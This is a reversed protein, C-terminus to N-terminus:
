RDIIDDTMPAAVHYNMVDHCRTFVMQWLGLAIHDVNCLLGQM